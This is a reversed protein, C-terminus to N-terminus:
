ASPSATTPAGTTQQTNRVNSIQSRYELIEQYEKAFKEMNLEDFMSSQMIPYTSSVLRSLSEWDKPTSTKTVLDVASKVGPSLSPAHDVNLKYITVISIGLSNQTEETKFLEPHREICERVKRSTPGCPGYTWSFSCPRPPYNFACKWDVLYVEKILRALKIGKEPIILAWIIDHLENM